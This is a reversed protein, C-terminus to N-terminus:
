RITSLMGNIVAGHAVSINGTSINGAIVAGSLLRLDGPCYIDGTVDAEVEANRAAINGNIVSNVEASLSEQCTIHGNIRANTHIVVDNAEIDGEVSGFVEAVGSVKLHGKISGKIEISGGCVINSEIVTSSGIITKELENEDTVEPVAYNTQVYGNFPTEVKQENFLPVDITDERNINDMDNLIANVDHENRYYESM